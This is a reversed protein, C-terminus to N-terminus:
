DVQVACIQYTSDSKFVKAANTDVDNSDKDYNNENGHM